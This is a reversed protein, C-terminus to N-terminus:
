SQVYWVDLGRFMKLIESSLTPIHFVMALTSNSNNM